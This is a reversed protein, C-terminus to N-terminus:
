PLLLLLSHTYTHHVLGLGSFFIDFDPLIGAVLALWLTLKQHRWRAVASAFIYGLAMHGLLYM